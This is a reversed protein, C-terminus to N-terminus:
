SDYLENIARAVMVVMERPITIRAVIKGASDVYRLDVLELGNDSDIPYTAVGITVTLQGSPQRERGHFPYDAIKPKASSIRSLLTSKGANPFGILGM